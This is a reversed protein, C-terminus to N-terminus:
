TKLSNLYEKRANISDAKITENEKLEQIYEKTKTKIKDFKQLNIEKPLLKFVDPFSIGYSKQLELSHEKSLTFEKEQAFSNFSIFSILILFTNKMNYNTNVM